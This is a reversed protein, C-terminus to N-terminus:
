GNTEEPLDTFFQRVDFNAINRALKLPSVGHKNTSYPNAGRARLLRILEGDGSSNFVAKILPTNGHNDCPDVSAGANLLLEAVKATNSQAAFHLPTRGEDDPVNPDM